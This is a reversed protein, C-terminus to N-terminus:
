AAIVLCLVNGQLKCSPRDSYTAIGLSGWWKETKYQSKHSVHFVSDFICDLMFSVHISGVEETIVSYHLGHSKNQNANFPITM